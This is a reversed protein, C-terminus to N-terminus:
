KKIIETTFDEIVDNIQIDKVNNLSIGCEYGEEVVNIDEKFRKLSTISSELIAKNNRLIKIKSKNCIKGNLVYCGYIMKSNSLKFIKKIVAKGLLKTELIPDLMNIMMTKINITVEPLLKYLKITVKKLKALKIIFRDLYVNFAIIIANSLSALNVDSETILGVNASIIKLDVGINKSILTLDDTLAELSGKVDTKIIIKLEKVPKDLKSYLINPLDINAIKDKRNRAINKAKIENDVIFFKDGIQPVDKIGCIKIPTSPFVIKIKENYENFMSRVKAYTTGIVLNDSIKMVGDQILLTAIPGVHKDLQAELVIGVAQKNHDATLEMMEAKLMIMEILSNINTNHKTSTNIIITDGGWSDYVLGYKSLEHMIKKPDSNPLDIKNIAIIIPVNVKKAQNIIEITQEKLGEVASIVLLIIDAINIGRSRMTVFIEHGPTDLFTISNKDTVDVKYASIHQTIKGYESSVINSKRIADLLSTKGHDVHGMIAVIPPRIKKTKKCDKNDKFDIIQTKNM